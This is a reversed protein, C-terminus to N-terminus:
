QVGKRMARVDHELMPQHGGSRDALAGGASYPTSKRMFGGGWVEVVPDDTANRPAEQLAKLVLLLSAAKNWLSISGGEVVKQPGSLVLARGICIRAGANKALILLYLGVLNWDGDGGRPLSCLLELGGGPLPNVFKLTVGRSRLAQQVKQLLNDINKESV